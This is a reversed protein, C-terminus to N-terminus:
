ANSSINIFFIFITVFAMVIMLNFIKTQRELQKEMKYSEFIINRSNNNFEANM